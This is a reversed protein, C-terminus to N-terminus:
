GPSDLYRTKVSSRIARLLVVGVPVYIFDIMTGFATLTLAIEFGFLYWDLLFFTVVEFGTGIIMAGVETVRRLLGIILGEPGRVIMIGLVFIGLFGPPIPLYASAVYLGVGSGILAALFGVYPGMLIATVFIIPPALTIATLPPPMPVSVATGAAILATM